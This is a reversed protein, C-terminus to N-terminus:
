PTTQTVGLAVTTYRVVNTNSMLTGSIQVTYSGTPTGTIALTPARCAVALALDLAMILSLTALRVALWASGLWGTRARRRNGLALSALSALSLLGFILPTFKGGPFRPLLRTSIPIYKVTSISLAVSTPTTGNPTPQSPTFTCTSDNNPLTKLTCAMQIQQNFGFLPNIIINYAAPSGAQTVNASPSPTM